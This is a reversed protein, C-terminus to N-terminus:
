KSVQLHALVSKILFTKGSLAPGVIAIMRVDRSQYDRYSMSELM